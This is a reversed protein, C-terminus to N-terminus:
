AVPFTGDSALVWWHSLSLRFFGRCARPEGPSKTMDGQPIPSRPCRPAKQGQHGQLAPIHHDRGRDQGDERQHSRSGDWRMGGRTIEQCHLVVGQKTDEIWEIVANGRFAHSSKSGDKREYYPGEKLRISDGPRLILNQSYKYEDLRM